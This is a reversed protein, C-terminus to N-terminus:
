RLVNVNLYVTHTHIVEYDLPSDLVLSGNEIRFPSDSPDLSFEVEGALGTDDDQASVNLVVYGTITDEALTVTTAESPEIFNPANDNVEDVTINLTTTANLAPDGGDQVFLELEYRDQTARHLVGDVAIEGSSSNISFTGNYDDLLSFELEANTGADRDSASVQFFVYGDTRDEAITITYPTDAFVPPNDNTDQVTVTFVQSSSRRFDVYGSDTADVTITFNTITERDFTDLLYLMGVVKSPPMEVFELTFNQSYESERLTLNALGEDGEDNDTVTFNFIAFEPSTNEVIDFQFPEEFDPAYDNAPEVVLVFIGTSNLSPTGKDSVLVEIDYTTAELTGNITMEGSNEDIAFPLSTDTLEFTLDSNPM